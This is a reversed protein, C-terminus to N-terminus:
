QKETNDLKQVNYANVTKADVPFLGYVEGTGTVARLRDRRGM